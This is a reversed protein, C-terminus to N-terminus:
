GEVGIVRKFDAYSQDFTIQKSWEWAAWRIREYLDPHRLLKVIADALASPNQETVIGTAGNRVSDRLGNVNYV